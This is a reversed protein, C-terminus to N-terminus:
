DFAVAGSDGPDDQLFCGFGGYWGACSSGWTSSSPINFVIGNYSYISSIYYGYNSTHSANRASCTIPHPPLRNYYQIAMLSAAANCCSDYGAFSDSTDYVQNVYPVGL